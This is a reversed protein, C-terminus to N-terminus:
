NTAKGSLWAEIGLDKAIKRATQGSVGVADADAGKALLATVAKSDMRRLANPLKETAKISRLNGADEFMTQERAATGLKSASRADEMKKLEALSRAGHNNSGYPMYDNVTNALVWEAFRDREKADVLCAYIRFLNAAPPVSGFGRDFMSEFYVMGKILNAIKEAKWGIVVSDWQQWLVGFDWTNPLRSEGMVSSDATRGLEVLFPLIDIIKQQQPDLQVPTNM